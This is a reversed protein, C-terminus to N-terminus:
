ANGGESAVIKGSAQLLQQLIIVNFHQSM